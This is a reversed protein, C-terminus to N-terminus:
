RRRPAARGTRAATRRGTPGAPREDARQEHQQGRDGVADVARDRDGGAPGGPEAVDVVRDGVPEALDGPQSANQSTPAGPASTTAAPASDQSCSYTRARATAAPIRSIPATVTPSRGVRTQPRGPRAAAPRASRASRAAVQGGAGDGHGGGDPHQQGAEAQALEEGGDAAGEDVGASPQGSGGPRRAAPSSRSLDALYRYGWRRIGEKAGTTGHGPGGGRAAPRPTVLRPRDRRRRDPRVPHGDAPRRRPPQLRGGAVARAGPGPQGPPAAWRGTGYISGGPAGTAADLDAPTRIERFVLRDRVDVGREALVDLVRDAYADALGPRRWDVADPATGHRAANVLVFWAEHGAPRVTPDDAVTVFVTPDTAPRARVGRGPDGFVADFEADYDGPFFVNHHALGSHAAYASCCCSAPRPQPRDARGAPAPAAAPGPLRHARRRQRGGRRRPGARPGGALRVGHM